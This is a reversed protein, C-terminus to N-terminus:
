IIFHYAMCVIVHVTGVTGNLGYLVVCYQFIGHWASEAWVMGNAVMGHWLM